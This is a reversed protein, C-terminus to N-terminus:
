DSRGRLPEPLQLRIRPPPVVADWGGSSVVGWAADFDFCKSAASAGVETRCDDTIELLVWQPGRGEFQMRKSHQGRTSNM